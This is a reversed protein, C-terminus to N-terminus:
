MTLISSMSAQLFMRQRLRNSIGLEWDTTNMQARTKNLAATFDSNGCM